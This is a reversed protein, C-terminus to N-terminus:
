GCYNFIKSLFESYSYEIKSKIERNYTVENKLKFEDNSIVDTINDTLKDVNLSLESHLDNNIHQVLDLFSKRLESQEKKIFNIIEIKEDDNLENGNIKSKISNIQDYFKFVLDIKPQIIIEKFWQLKINKRRNIETEEDSKNDKNKQYVFVYFGLVLTLLAIIINSLNSLTELNLWSSKEICLLVMINNKLYLM